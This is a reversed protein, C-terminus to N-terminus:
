CAKCQKKIFSLFYLLNWRREKVVPTGIGAVLRQTRGPDASGFKVPINNELFCETTELDIVEEKRLFPSHPLWSAAAEVKHFPVEVQGEDVLSSYFLVPDQVM